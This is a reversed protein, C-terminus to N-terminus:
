LQIPETTLATIADDIYACSAPADPAPASQWQTVNVAPPTLNMAALVAAAIADLDDSTLTLAM